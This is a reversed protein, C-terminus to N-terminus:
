YSGMDVLCGIERSRLEMVQLISVLAGVHSDQSAGTLHPFKHFYEKNKIEAKLALQHSFSQEPDDYPREKM